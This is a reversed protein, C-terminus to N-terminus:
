KKNRRWLGKFIALKNIYIRLKVKTNCYAITVVARYILANTTSKKHAACLQMGREWLQLILSSANNVTHRRAILIIFATM